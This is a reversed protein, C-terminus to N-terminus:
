CVAYKLSRNEEWNTKKTTIPKDLYSNGMFIQKNLLILFVTNPEKKNLDKLFEEIRLLKWKQIIPYFILIFNLVLFFHSFIM